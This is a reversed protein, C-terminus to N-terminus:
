PALRRPAIAAALAASLVVVGGHVLGLHWRDAIPCHLHLVLGAFCGSAAGLGAAAWRAGVPLVGRLAVVCGVAPMLATLLGIEVCYHGRHLEALPLQISSPGSRPLLLGAVVFGVAALLGGLGAIRWRPMMAGRPPLVALAALGTFAVLWAALYAILWAAPVEALDARVGTVLVMAAGFLAAMGLISALQRAPARPRVPTLAGLEAELAAGLPLPRPRPLDRLSADLEPDPGSM